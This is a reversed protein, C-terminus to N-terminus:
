ATAADVCCGAINVGQENISQLLEEDSICKTLLNKIEDGLGLSNGTAMTYKKIQKIAGRICSEFGVSKEQLKQYDCRLENARHRLDSNTERLTSLEGKLAVRESELHNLKTAATDLRAHLAEREDRLKTLEEKLAQIEELANRLQVRRKEDEAFNVVFSCRLTNLEMKLAVNEIKLKNMIELLREIEIGQGQSATSGARGVSSPDIRALATVSDDSYRGQCGNIQKYYLNMVELKDAIPRIATENRKKQALEVDKRQLVEKAHTLELKIELNESRLNLLEFKLSENEVSLKKVEDKANKGKTKETKATNRKQENHENFIADAVAMSGDKEARSIGSRLNSVYEHYLTDKEKTLAVNTMELFKLQNELVRYESRAEILKMKLQENAGLLAENGERAEGLASQLAANGSRAKDCETRLKNLEVSSYENETKVKNLQDKLAVNEGHLENIRTALGNKETVLVRVRDEFGSNNVAMDDFDDRLRSNEFELRRIEDGAGSLEGRAEELKGALDERDCKLNRIEERLVCCESKYENVEGELSSCKGKVNVLSRDLLEKEASLDMLEARLREGESKLDAREGVLENYESMLKTLEKLREEATTKEVGLQYVLIEKKSEMHFISAELRAKDNSLHDLRAKLDIIERNANNVSEISTELEAKLRQVEADTDESSAESRKAGEGEEAGKKRKKKKPADESEKRLNASEEARREAREFESLKHQLREKERSAAHLNKVLDAIRANLAKEIAAKEGAIAKIEESKKQVSDRMKGVEKLLGEKYAQLKKRIVNGEHKVQQLQELEKKSGEHERQLESMKEEMRRAKSKLSRNEEALAVIKGQADQLEGVREELLAGADLLKAKLVHLHEDKESSEVNVRVISEELQEIRKFLSPRDNSAAIMELQKIERCMRDVFGKLEEVGEAENANEKASAARHLGNMTSRAKEIVAELEEINSLYELSRDGGVRCHKMVHDEKLQDIEVTIQELTCELISIQRSCKNPEMTKDSPPLCVISKALEVHLQKLSVRLETIRKMYKLCDPDGAALLAEHDNRLKIVLGNTLREVNRLSHQYDASKSWSKEELNVKFVSLEKKLRRTLNDLEVIRKEYDISDGYRFRLMAKLKDVESYLDNNKMRSRRLHESLNVLGESLNAVTEAVKNVIDTFIIEMTHDVMMFHKLKCTLHEVESSHEQGEEAERLRSRLYLIENNLREKEVLVEQKFEVLRDNAEWADERVDARGTESLATKVEAIENKLAQNAAELRKIEERQHEILPDAHLTDDTERKAVRLALKLRWINSRLKVRDERWDKMQKMISNLRCMTAAAVEAIRTKEKYADETGGISLCNGLFEDGM